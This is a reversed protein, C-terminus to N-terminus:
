NVFNYINYLQIHVNLKSYIDYRITDYDFYGPQYDVADDFDYSDGGLPM